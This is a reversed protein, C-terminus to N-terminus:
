VILHMGIYQYLLQKIKTFNDLQFPIGQIAYAEPRTRTLGYFHVKKLDYSLADMVEDPLLDLFDQATEGRAFLTSLGQNVQRWETTYTELMQIVNDFESELSADLNPLVGNLMSGTATYQKHRYTFGLFANPHTSVRANAQITDTRLKNLYDSYPGFIESMIASVLELKYKTPNSM